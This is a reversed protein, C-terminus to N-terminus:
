LQVLAVAGGAIVVGIIFRAMPFKEDNAPGEAKRKGTVMAGVLNTKLAALYFGIAAVHLAILAVVVNFFTEHIEAVDRGASFSIYKALPGSEIGDTDVAFLGATIQVAIAALLAVVSLAGLPNHGAAPRYPPKLGKIYSIVPGPGKVFAGFRATRTGAVGWYVRFVLLGLLTLGFRRHWDMFGNEASLWLMLVLAAASWHFVRIAIDWVPKPPAPIIDPAKGADTM